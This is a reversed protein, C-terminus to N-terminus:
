EVWSIGSRVNVRINFRIEGSEFHVSGMGSGFRTVTVGDSTSGVWVEVSRIWIRGELSQGSCSGFGFKVRVSVTGSGSLSLGFSVM